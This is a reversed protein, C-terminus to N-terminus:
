EITSYVYIIFFVIKEYLQIWIGACSLVMDLQSGHIASFWTCSLVMYLQSWSGTLNNRSCRSPNTWGPPSPRSRRWNQHVFANVNSLTEQVAWVRIWYSRGYLAALAALAPRRVEDQFAELMYVEDRSEMPVKPLFKPKRLDRIKRWINWKSKQTEELMAAQLSPYWDDILSMVLSTDSEKRGLWINVCAAQKYIQQMQRVRASRETADIWLRIEDPFVEPSLYDSGHPALATFHKLAAWLNFTVSMITSGVVIDIGGRDNYVVPERDAFSVDSEPLDWRYSLANYKPHSDLSEYELLCQIKDPSENSTTSSSKLLIRLLRIEHITDNM